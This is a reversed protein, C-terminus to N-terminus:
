LLQLPEPAPRTRRFEPMARRPDFCGPLPLGAVDPFVPLPGEGGMRSQMLETLVSRYDITVDLDGNFLRADALGPWNSVVRGGRVGGGLLLMASGCGHDTGASANEGARRGFESMTVLTVEDMRPGLDQHFAALGAALEDLLPPLETTIADHHDFGNLDVCAVRLGMGAKVLQAVEKLQSGFTGAPYAAGNEVPLAGPARAALYAANALAARGARCLATERAHLSALADQLGAKRSSSSSFAFGALNPMALAAADGRLAMPLSNGMGVAVFSGPDGNGALWRNGWGSHAGHAGAAVDHIGTEIHDQCAFHSREDHKLGTAHVIGLRGNRYIPLLPALSPHLGFFGDLDLAGQAQGPAPVGITPRLRRYDPDGHPVVMQLADAGGRLFVIVLVDAPPLGDVAGFLLRPGALVGAGLVAGAKLFSRRDLEM